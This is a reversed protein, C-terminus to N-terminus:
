GGVCALRYTVSLFSISPLRTLFTSAMNKSGQNHLKPLNTHSNHNQNFNSDMLKISIIYFYTILHM